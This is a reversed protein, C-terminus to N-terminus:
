SSWAIAALIVAVGNIAWHAMIPAILSGSRRRLECFAVGAVTTVLVIGCLVLAQSLFGSGVADGIIDSSQSIHLSPVIHWLGFLVSSVLISKTMSMIRSLSALLVGRFLLEELIVTHLPVILLATLLAGGLQNQYRSDLFLTHNVLHAVVMVCAVTVIAAIGWISGRGITKRSLGIDAFRLAGRQAILLLLGVVIAVVFWSSIHSTWLVSVNAVVLLSITALVTRKEISM